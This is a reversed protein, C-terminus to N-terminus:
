SRMLIRSKTILGDFLGSISAFQSVWIELLDVKTASHTWVYFIFMKCSESIVAERILNTVRSPHGMNLRKAIWPNGATTRARLTRAIGAKWPAGKPETRLDAESKDAAALAAEVLDDWMAENLEKLESGCPVSGNIRVILYLAKSSDFDGDTSM